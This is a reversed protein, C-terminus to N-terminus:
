RFEGMEPDIVVSFCDDRTWARTFGSLLRHDTKAPSQKLHHLLMSRQYNDFAALGAVMKVVPSLGPGLRQVIMNVLDQVISTAAPLDPARLKEYLIRAACTTATGVSLTGHLQHYKKSEHVHLRELRANADRLHHEDRTIAPGVLAILADTETNPRNEGHARLTWLLKALTELGLVTTPEWDMTFPNPLERVDLTFLLGTVYCFTYSDVYARPTTPDRDRKRKLLGYALQLHRVCDLGALADRYCLTLAAVLLWDADVDVTNDGLGVVLRRLAGRYKADSIKTYHEVALTPTHPHAVVPQRPLQQALASAGCCMFVEVLIDSKQAMQMMNIPAVAYPLTVKPVFAHLFQHLLHSDEESLPHQKRRSPTLAIKRRKAGPGEM